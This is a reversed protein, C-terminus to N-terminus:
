WSVNSIKAEIVSRNNIVQYSKLVKPSEIHTLWTLFSLLKGYRTVQNSSSHCRDVPDLHISNVRAFRRWLYVAAEQFIPIDRAIWTSGSVGICIQRTSIRVSFIEWFIWNEVTKLVITQVSDRRCPPVALTRGVDHRQHFGEVFNWSKRFQFHFRFGVLLIRHTSIGMSLFYVQISSFHEVSNEIDKVASQERVM